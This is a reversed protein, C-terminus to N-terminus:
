AEGAEELLAQRDPRAAWAAVRGDAIRWRAGVPLVRMVEGTEYSRMEINLLGFVTDGRVILREISPYHPTEGKWGRATWAALGAHGTLPESTAPTLEIAPDAIEELAALDRDHYARIWREVIAANEESM